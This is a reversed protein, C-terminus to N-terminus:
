NQSEEFALYLCREGRRCAADARYAALSTKGCGPGGGTIEDLGTIGTPCKALQRHSLEGPGDTEAM